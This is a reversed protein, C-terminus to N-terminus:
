ARFIVSQVISVLRYMRRTQLVPTPSQSLGVTARQHQIGHTLLPHNRQPHRSLPDRWEGFSSQSRRYYGRNSSSDAGDPLHYDDYDSHARDGAM